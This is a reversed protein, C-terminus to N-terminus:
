PTKTWQDPRKEAIGKLKDAETGFRRQLAALHGADIADALGERAEAMVLAWLDADMNMGDM